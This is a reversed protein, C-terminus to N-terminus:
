YHATQLVLMSNNYFEMIKQYCWSMKRNRVELSQFQSYYMQSYLPCDMKYKQSPLSCTYNALLSTSPIDQPPISCTKHYVSPGSAQETVSVRNKINRKKGSHEIYKYSVCALTALQIYILLLICEFTVVIQEFRKLRSNWIIM